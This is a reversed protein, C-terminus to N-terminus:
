RPTRMTSSHPRTPRTGSGPDSGPMLEEPFEVRRGADLGLGAPAEAEPNKISIEFRGQHEIRFAHQVEGPEEPPELVYALVTGRDRRVLAYVGEGAPRAAPLQRDGRTDSESTADSLAVRLGEPEDFVRDVFAWHNAGEPASGPLMKRGVTILRIVDKGAPRLVM